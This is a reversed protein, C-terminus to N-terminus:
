SYKHRILSMISGLKILLRRGLIAFFIISKGYGVSRLIKRIESAHTESLKESVGGRRFNSLINNIQKIKVSSKFIKMIILYDAAISYEENFTGFKKFSKKNYFCSTHIVPMTLWFPRNRFPPIVRVLNENVIINTAGFFLYADPDDKYADVVNQITKPNYWDDIGIFSIIEGKALSIGKNFGSYIGRDPESIWYDINNGFSKILELTNDTSQADVVIIEFNSYTQQIVSELAQKIHNQGNFVPIIISVLPTFKNHSKTIGNLRGGGEIM